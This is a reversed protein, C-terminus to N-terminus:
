FHRCRARALDLEIGNEQVAVKRITLHLPILGVNTCVRSVLVHVILLIIIYLFHLLMIYVTSLQLCLTRTHTDHTVQVREHKSLLCLLLHLSSFLVLLMSNDVANTQLPQHNTHPYITCLPLGVMPCFYHENEMEKKRQFRLTRKHWHREEVFM